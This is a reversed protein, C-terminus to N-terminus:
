NSHGKKEGFRLVRSLQEIEISAQRTRVWYFASHIASSKFEPGHHVKLSNEVPFTALQHMMKM